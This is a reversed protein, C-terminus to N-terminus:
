KEPVPLDGNNVDDGDYIEIIPKAEFAKTVIFKDLSLLLTPLVIINFFMAIFLTTSILIGLAQTGGFESVIFVSFGLVLVISTYLMSFGAERLANITSLKINGGTVKLEHRYRSLYQIANDVSIGLAISFVIITSPKIPIGAFGMIAATILLPIINPLMSVVIMRVSSFMLAMLLSILAIAIGVSLFLHKILFETSRANVISNGTISVTYDEKNFISEVQPKISDLLRNIEKTGVDAMQFSVRTIQQTSDLFSKLVNTKGESKKPFYSLVFNREQSNPLTYYEPKGNFYAQKAFKVAEALSLPKSFEKHKLVEQQLEDIKNITQMRMAGKKKKTDISIEFPMVGGFNKEFFKLDASIPDSKKLDDVVKGSTRIRTIGVIGVLVLLGAFGYIWKRRFQILYIIKDLIRGFFKNDLHKVNKEDPTKLFSFIIPLLTITLVYEMIVCISTIIGFQRLMQNSVIIFAAFGIATATNVMLSAYGIRQVVRSLAKMKNRHLRYEWHYKNVIYICNEIAIVVILSPVAGLLITIKFNFLGILGLAWVISIGVVVLSSLVIKFSRFFLFLIFAAVVVSLVIFLYLENKIKEMQITRIYPLGSYHIEHKTSNHYREAAEHIKTVVATRSKDNLKKKDLTVAMLYANTSKNYMLGEYFKLGHIMEKLSDVEAQSSARRAVVPLFEFKHISDNKKLSIARTISAVEQIGDIKKIENGLDYWANFEDLKFMDPNVIGIVLVNGDEGFRSKFEKYDVYSSDNEPLMRLMDYSLKVDSAQWAMLATIIFIGALIAPRNRFIIRVLHNWM